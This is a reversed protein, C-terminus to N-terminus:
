GRPKSGTVRMGLGALLADLEEPFQLGQLLKLRATGMDPDEEHGWRKNITAASMAAAYLALAEGETLEFVKTPSSLPEGALEGEQSRSLEQSM